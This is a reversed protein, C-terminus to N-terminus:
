DEVFVNKQGLMWDLAGTKLLVVGDCVGAAKAMSAIVSM